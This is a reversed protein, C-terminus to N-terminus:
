TFHLIVEAFSLLTSQMARSCCVRTCCDLTMFIVVIGGFIPALAAYLFLLRSSDVNCERIQCTRVQLLRVAASPRGRTCGGTRSGTRTAGPAGRAWDMGSSAGRYPTAESYINMGFLLFIGLTNSSLECCRM